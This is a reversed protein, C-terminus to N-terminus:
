AKRALIHFEDGGPEMAPGEVIELRQVNGSFWELLSLLDGPMFVHYHISYDDCVLQRAHGIAAEGQKEDVHIAYDLYHEFDRERSPERYDLVMHEITTRVRRKDFMTRKDPAVLYLLGGPKLVRCWAALAGLPNRMHEIVHAAILSDYSADAVSDLTEADGIITPEVLAVDRLEPYHARLEEVTYRDIYEVPFGPPVEMPRWLPGIELTRGRLRAAFDLRWNHLELSRLRGEVVDAQPITGRMAAVQQAIGPFEGARAVMAAEAAEADFLAQWAVRLHRAFARPHLRRGFLTLPM